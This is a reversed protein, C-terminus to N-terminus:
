LIKILLQNVRSNPKYAWSIIAAALLGTICGALIDTVYHTGIFVRSWCILIAALTFWLAQRRFALFAFTAAIASVATAHDSPFSWDASKAIILHTIGADYPRIRHVGLLILQNFAEGLLFALGAAIIAHRRNERNPKIFWQLAVSFIMLPVGVTTIAIMLQDLPANSGAPANLWTTLTKDLDLM